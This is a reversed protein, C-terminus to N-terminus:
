SSNSCPRLNGDAGDAGDKAKNKSPKPATPLVQNDDAYGGRGDMDNGLDKVPGNSEHVTRVSPVSNKGDTRIEIIRRRNDRTTAGLIYFPNRVLEM